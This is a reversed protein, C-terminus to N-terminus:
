QKRLVIQVITAATNALDAPRLNPKKLVLSVLEGKRAAVLQSLTANWYAKEGVNPVWELQQPKVELQRGDREVRYGKSLKEFRESMEQMSDRVKEIRLSVSEPDRAPRPKGRMLADRLEETSPPPGLWVYTCSDAQATRMPTTAPVELVERVEKETLLSCPNVAAALLLLFTV